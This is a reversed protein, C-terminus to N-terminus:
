GGRGRGGHQDRGRGGMEEQTQQGGGAGGANSRPFLIFPSYCKESFGILILFSM